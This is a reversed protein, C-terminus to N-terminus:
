TVQFNMVKDLTTNSNWYKDREVPLGLRGRITQLERLSIYGLEAGQEDGLNCFGYFKDKGDFETIYWTCQADPTFLKLIVKTEEPKKDDNVYLAPLKNLLEKTLLEM